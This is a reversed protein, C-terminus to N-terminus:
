IVDAFAPRLKQFFWLGVFAVVLSTLTSVLWSIWSLHHGLLVVNRMEEISFSLPNFVMLQQAFEPAATSAYFIPSLFLLMSMLIGIFQEIDRFFVGLAALFWAFGLAYFVVPMLVVPIYFITWDLSIKHWLVLIVLIAISILANFLSTLLNSFPLLELPFVVKKVYNPNNVILGPSKSVVESFLAYVILGCYLMEVFDWM